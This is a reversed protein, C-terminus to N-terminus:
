GVEALGDRVRYCWQITKHDDTVEAGGQREKAIDAVLLSCMWEVAPYAGISYTAVDLGTNAALDPRANFISRMWYSATLVVADDVDTDISEDADDDLAKTIVDANEIQQVKPITTYGAM